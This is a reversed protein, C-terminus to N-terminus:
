KDIEILADALTEVGAVLDEWKTDEQPCHSMGNISPVFLMGTPIVGSIFVADHGAGSIIKRWKGYQKALATEIAGLVNKDFAVPAARWYREIEVELGRQACIKIIIERADVEMRDLDLDNDHRMDISFYVKDPIINKSGPGAQIIGMTMVAPDGYAVTYDRLALIAEAATALADKRNGMPTTGAHNAQGKITVDLGTIGLAGTVLGLNYGQQDLIPGQEIHTEVYAKAERLRNGVDGSYGIRALEDGYRISEKDRRDRVWDAEFIGAVVGSALMPPVFRAGEENTWNIVVMPSKTEIGADRLTCVAELGAMVGFLGDYRGGNPQTDMHSGTCIPKADGDKGAMIGYMTGLDDVLVTMGAEEMWSKLLDRAIKDADSLALRMRGDQETVALSNIAEMREKFRQENIRM